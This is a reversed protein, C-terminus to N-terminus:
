RSGLIIERGLVLVQEVAVDIQVFSENVAGACELGEPLEAGVDAEAAREIRPQALEGDQLDAPEGARGVLPRVVDLDAVVEADDGVVNTRQDVLGVALGDM